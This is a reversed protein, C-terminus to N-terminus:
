FRQHQGIQHLSYLANKDDQFMRLIKKYDEEKKERNWIWNPGLHLVILAQALLMQGCRLM